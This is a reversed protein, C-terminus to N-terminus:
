KFYDTDFTRQRWFSFKVSQPYAFASGLDRVNATPREMLMLAQKSHILKVELARNHEALMTPVRLPLKQSLEAELLVQRQAIPTENLLTALTAASFGALVIGLLTRLEKSWTSM